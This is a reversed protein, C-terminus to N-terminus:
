FYMLFPFMTFAGEDEMNVWRRWLSKGVAGPFVRILQEHAGPIKSHVYFIFDCTKIRGGKSNKSFLNCLICVTCAPNIVLDIPKGRPSPLALGLMALFDHHSSENGGAFFSLLPNMALATREGGFSARFSKEPASVHEDLFVIHQHACGSCACNSLCAVSCAWKLTM